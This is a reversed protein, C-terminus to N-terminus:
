TTPTTSGGGDDSGGIASGAGWIVATVVVLLVGVFTVFLGLGVIKEGTPRSKDMFLKLAKSGWGIFAGVVAKVIDWPGVPAPAKADRTPPPAARVMGIVGFVTILLGLAIIALSGFFPWKLIDAADAALTLDM